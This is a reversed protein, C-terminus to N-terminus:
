QPVVRLPPGYPNGAGYPNNLCRPDYPCTQALAPATLASGLVAAALVFRVIHPHRFTPM